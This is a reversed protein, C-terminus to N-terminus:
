LCVIGHQHKQNTIEIETLFSVIFLEDRLPQFCLAWVVNPFDRQPMNICMFEPEAAGVQEKSVGVNGWVPSPSGPVWAPM